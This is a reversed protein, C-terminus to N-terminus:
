EPTVGTSIGVHSERTTKNAHKRNQLEDIAPKWSEYLHSYKGSKPSITALLKPNRGKTVILVAGAKNVYWRVGRMITSVNNTDAGANKLQEQIFQALLEDTDM